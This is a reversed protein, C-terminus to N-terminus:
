CCNRATGIKALTARQFIRVARVTNNPSLKYASVQRPNEILLAQLIGLGALFYILLDGGITGLASAAPPIPPAGQAEDFAIPAAPTSAAIASPLGDEIIEETIDPIYNWVRLLLNNPAM